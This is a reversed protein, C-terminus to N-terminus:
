APRSEGRFRPVSIFLPPQVTDDRIVGGDPFDAWLRTVSRGPVSLRHGILASLAQDAVLQCQARTAGVCTAQWILSADDDPCGLPGDFTGGALPYVVIYPLFTSQGPTGQWGWDAGGGLDDIAPPAADFVTVSTASVLRTVLADTHERLSAIM